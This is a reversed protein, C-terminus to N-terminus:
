PKPTHFLAQRSIVASGTRRYTRPLDARSQPNHATDVVKIDYAAGAYTCPGSLTQCCSCPSSLVFITVQPPWPERQDPASALCSRLSSPTCLLLFSCDDVLAM